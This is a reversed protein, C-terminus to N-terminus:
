RRWKQAVADYKLDRLQRGTKCMTESPLDCHGCGRLHAFFWSAATKVADHDISDIIHAPADMM